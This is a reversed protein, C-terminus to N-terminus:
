GKLFFMWMSVITLHFIFSIIFLLSDEKRNPGQKDFYFMLFNYILFWGFIPVFTGIFLVAWRFFLNLIFIYHNVTRKM